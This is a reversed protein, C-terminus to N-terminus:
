MSAYIRSKAIYTTDCIVCMYLAGPALSCVKQNKVKKSIYRYMHIYSLSTLDPHYPLHKRNQPVLTHSDRSERSETCNLYHLVRWFFTLCLVGKNKRTLFLVVALFSGLIPCSQLRTEIRLESVDRRSFRFPRNLCLTSKLCVVGSFTRTLFSCEALM